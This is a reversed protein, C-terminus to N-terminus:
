TESFAERGEFQWSPQGESEWSPTRVVIQLASLLPLTPAPADKLLSFKM